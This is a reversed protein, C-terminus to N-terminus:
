DDGGSHKDDPELEGRGGHDGDPEISGSPAPAPVLLPVTNPDAGVSPGPAPRGDTVSSGAPASPSPTSAPAPSGATTANQPLLVMNAPVASGAPSSNLTQINVALAAAGSLLVSAARLVLVTNAKM